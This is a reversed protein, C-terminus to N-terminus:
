DAISKDRQRKNGFRAYLMVNEYGAVCMLDFSRTSVAILNRAHLQGTSARAPIATMGVQFPIEMCIGSDVSM